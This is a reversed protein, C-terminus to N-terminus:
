AKNQQEAQNNGTCGAKGPQQFRIKLRTRQRREVGDRGLIGQHLVAGCQFLSAGGQDGAGHNLHEVCLLRLRELESQFTLETFQLLDALASRRGPDPRDIESSVFLDPQFLATILVM